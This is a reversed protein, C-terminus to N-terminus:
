NFIHLYFSLNNLPYKDRDQYFISVKSNLADILREIQNFSHRIRKLIWSFDNLYNYIAFIFSIKTNINDTSEIKKFLTRVKPVIVTVFTCYYTQKRRESDKLVKKIQPIVKGSFYSKNSDYLESQTKYSQIIRILETPMVPISDYIRQFSCKNDTHGRGCTSCIVLLPCSRKDHNSQKCSSCVM